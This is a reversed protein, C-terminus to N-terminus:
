LVKGENLTKAYEEKVWDELYPDLEERFLLYLNPSLRNGAFFYLPNIYYQVETYDGFPVTVPKIVKNKEARKLFRAAQDENLDLLKGIDQVSYPKAGIRTKKALVNTKHWIHKGLIALNGIDAKSMGSPYPIRSFIRAGKTHTWFLYGSDPDFKPPFYIVKNKEHVVEGTHLDIIVEKNEKSFRNRNARKKM